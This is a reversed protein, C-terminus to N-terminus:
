HNGAALRLNGYINSQPPNTAHSDAEQLNAIVVKDAAPMNKDRTCHQCAYQGQDSKKGPVGKM